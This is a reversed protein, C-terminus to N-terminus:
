CPTLLLSLSSLPFSALVLSQHSLNQRPHSSPAQGRPCTPKLYPCSNRQDVHLRFCTYSRGTSFGSPPSVQPRSDPPLHSQSGPVKCIPSSDAVSPVAAHEQGHAVAEVQFTRGESGLGYRIGRGPFKESNNRGMLGSATHCQSPFGLAALILPPSPGLPALHPLTRPRHRDGALEGSQPQTSQESVTRILSPSAKQVLLLRSAPSAPGAQSWLLAAPGLAAM